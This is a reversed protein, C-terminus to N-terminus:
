TWGRACLRSPEARLEGDGVVHLEAPVRMLPLAHLLRAVNKQRALRGVFLLSLPGNPPIHDIAYSM